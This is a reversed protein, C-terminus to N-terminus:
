FQEILKDILFTSERMAQESFSGFWDAIKNFETCFVEKDGNEIMDLNGNISALYEKLLKRREASAFIIEAYLSADQTFLRGVMALELRYIPSSFELTRHLDVRRRSLFQGFAFTAFHRLTQVIGMIDDHEQATSPVVVGGWASFQDTLWRCASQDRGPTAVVIQKEFTSTPPGFLPHLGIVPGDHAKLMAKLPAEKISTIDALVCEAPLYPALKHIVDVTVAIPVSILALDIGRCLSKVNPWEKRGMHQVHYGSKRFWRDFYQGMGGSGGVILVSAGPRVSKLTSDAAQEVMSHRLVLRFIEEIYDPDLGAQHALRRRETILNEEYAPNHISPNRDKKLPVAAEIHKRRESLLSVIQRDVADLQSRLDGLTNEDDGGGNASPSHPPNHQTVM